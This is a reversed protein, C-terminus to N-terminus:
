DIYKKEIKLKYIISTKNHQQFKNIVLKYKYQRTSWHISIIINLNVEFFRCILQQHKYATGQEIM